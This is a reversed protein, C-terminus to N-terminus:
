LLINKNKIICILTIVCKILCKDHIWYVNVNTITLPAIQLNSSRFHEWPSMHELPWLHTVVSFFSQGRMFIASNWHIIIQYTLLNCIYRTHPFFNDKKLRQNKKKIPSISTLNIDLKRKPFSIRWHSFSYAHSTNKNKRMLINWKQLSVTGNIIFYSKLSKLTQKTKTKKENTFQYLLCFCFKLNPLM